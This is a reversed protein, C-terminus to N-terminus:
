ADPLGSQLRRLSVSRALCLREEEREVVAAACLQNLVKSNPM